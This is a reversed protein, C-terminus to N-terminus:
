PFEKKGRSITEHPLLLAKPKLWPWRHYIIAALWESFLPTFIAVTFAWAAMRPTPVLWVALGFVIWFTLFRGYQVVAKVPTWAPLPLTLLYTLALGVAVSTLVAHLEPISFVRQMFSLFGHAFGPSM